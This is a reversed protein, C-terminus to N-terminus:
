STTEKKSRISELVHILRSLIGQFVGLLGAQGSTLASLMQALLVERSPIEAMQKIDDPGIVKGQLVGAKIELKPNNKVFKTLIKAPSMQDNYSLAVATPGNFYGDLLELETSKAALKVITNKVVRYEVAEDRLDTRLRNMEDVNLGCYDTLIAVKARQFKERLESVTQEKLERNM